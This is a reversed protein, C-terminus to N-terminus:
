LLVQSGPPCPPHSYSAFESTSRTRRVYLELNDTKFFPSTAHFVSKLIVRIIIGYLASNSQLCRPELHFGPLRDRFGFELFRKHLRLVFRLTRFILLLGPSSSLDYLILFVARSLVGEFKRSSDMNRGRVAIYLVAPRYYYPYSTLLIFPGHM